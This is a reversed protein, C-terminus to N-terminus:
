TKNIETQLHEDLLPSREMLWQHLNDTIRILENRDFPIEKLRYRGVDIQVAKTGIFGFNTNLDPDKDFIGRESRTKLLHVLHSLAEKADDTKDQAIWEELAPYTLTAKKQVIFEYNDLDILHHINLKDVIELKHKLHTTKNLHLYLLGTEEQLRNYALLYSGFDKAVKADTRLRHHRFFKIVTKGDQALFVYSQVGRALYYYPQSLMAKVEAENSQPVDWEPRYSFNSQIRTMAFSDTQKRCFRSAGYFCLIFLVIKFVWKM